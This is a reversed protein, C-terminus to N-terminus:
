FNGGNIEAYGKKNNSEYTQKYTELNDMDRITNVDLNAQYIDMASEDTLKHEICFDLYETNCYFTCDDHIFGIGEDVTIYFM